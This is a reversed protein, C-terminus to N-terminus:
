WRREFKRRLYIALLNMALLFALLVLFAAEHGPEPVDKLLDLHVDVVTDVPKAITYPIAQPWVRIAEHM